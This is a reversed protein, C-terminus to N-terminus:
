QRREIVSVTADATNTLYVTHTSPDVALGNGLVPITATVTRTSADIM